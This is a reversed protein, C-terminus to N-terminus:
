AARRVADDLQQATGLTSRRAALVRRHTSKQQWCAAQCVVSDLQQVAGLRAATRRHEDHQM